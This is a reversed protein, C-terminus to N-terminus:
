TFTLVKSAFKYKVLQLQIPRNTSYAFYTYNIKNEEISMKVLFTVLINNCLLANLNKDNQISM